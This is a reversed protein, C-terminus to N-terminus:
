WRAPNLSSRDPLQLYRNELLGPQNAHKTLHTLAFSLLATRGSRHFNRRADRAFQAMAEAEARPEDIGQGGPMVLFPKTSAKTEQKNAISRGEKRFVTRANIFLFALLIFIGFLLVIITIIVLTVVPYLLFFNGPYQMALLFFTIGPASLALCLMFGSFLNTKNIRYALYFIGFLIATVVCSGLIVEM